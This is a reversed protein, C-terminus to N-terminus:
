VIELLYGRRGAAHVGIRLPELARRLRSVDDLGATALAGRSVISGESALLLRFGRRDDPAVACTRHGRRVIGHADLDIEPSAIAAARRHLTAARAAVEADGADARVWDELPDAIPRPPPAGPAVVVLRPATRQM